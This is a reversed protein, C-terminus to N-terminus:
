NQSSDITDLDSKQQLHKLMRFHDVGDVLDLEEDKNNKSKDAGENLPIYSFATQKINSCMPIPDLCVRTQEM